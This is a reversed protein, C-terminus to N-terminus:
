RWKVGWVGVVSSYTCLRETTDLEKHGCPTCGVLSRQGYPEGPLLVPTPQWARWPIKGLGPISEVDTCVPEKGSAGGSDLVPCNVLSGSGVCRSPRGGPM